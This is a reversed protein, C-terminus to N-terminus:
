CNWEGLVGGVVVGLHVGECMSSAPDLGDDIGVGGDSGDPNERVGGQSNLLDKVSRGMRRLVCGDNKSRAEVLDESQMREDFTTYSPSRTM